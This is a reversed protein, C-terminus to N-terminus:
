DITGHQLSVNEPLKHLTHAPVVWSAQMGGPSDIGIHTYGNDSPVPTGPNLPRVAVKEGAAFGEM